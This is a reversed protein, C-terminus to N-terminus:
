RSLFLDSLVLNEILDGIHYGSDASRETIARLEKRDDITMTRRLAYTALNEILADIFPEPESALLQKFEEVGAFKRGDPMVGSADVAPNEGKGESVVEATRWRGIADYNEFAFGLPDLKKHCTACNKDTAHAEIQRRITTKPANREAPELPEVNPPPPTPTVGFIAESIWVGRHIPRHRTGDSTLSLVSGHTLLGGRRHEPRLSVRHFGSKQPIPIDYHRSLRPNLMTWDSDLFATVPLNNAFVERFYRTTELTMSKELWLDYDPYLKSDPAFMGVQHLQLWQKPFSETFREIKPDALMRKLQARLNKPERLTGTEAASLLTEDPMSGWLFYSLRSALEHDNLELGRGEGGEVIYYFNKSTLIGLMAALQARHPTEGAELELEFVHLYRAIEEESAPRRWARDALKRLAARSEEILEERQLESKSNRIQEPMLGERKALDTETTLPGEWEIWDVMMLPYVGRGDDTTLMLGTPNLQGVVEKSSTFVSGGGRLVNRYHGDPIKGAVENQLVLATGADLFTEFEVVMPADEAAVIDQEFVSQGLKPDWVTLHPAIGDVSMLGSIQLRARYQGPENRPVGSRGHITQGPWILVRVRDAIGREELEQRQGRHKLDIADTRVVKIKPQHKPFARELIEEGARFYRDVHSPSLSLMSGVREFGHWRPDENMAGPQYVDFRVGLLDYVTNAYEERSLRYHAVEGRKAMRAAEGEALRAAIWGSIEELEAGSPQPEDEPPMEGANLRGMVEAWIEANTSVAFDRPLTDIRFDGKQKEEGHCRVCHEALFPEVSSPAACVAATLSLLIPFLCKM